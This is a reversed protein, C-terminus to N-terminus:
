LQLQDHQNRGAGNAGMPPAIVSTVRGLPDYATTTTPGGPLGSAPDPLSDSMQEGIADYGYTEVGGDADTIQYVNGTPTYTYTTVAPTSSGDPGPTSVTSLQELSNYTYTTNQWVQDDNSVAQLVSQSTVNGMPDYAYNTQPSNGDSDAPDTENIERGLNDYTFYTFNGNEDEYSALDNFSDYSYYVAASATYVTSSQVYLPPNASSLASSPEIVENVLGADSGSTNYVNTTVNGNPDEVTLVLGNPCSGGPSDPTTYTYQTVVNSPWDQETVSKLDGANGGTEDTDYYAYSVVDPPFSVGSWDVPANYNATDTEVSLPDEGPAYYTWTVTDGSVDASLYGYTSNDYIAAGDHEASADADYAYTEATGDITPSWDFSEIQDIPTATGAALRSAKARSRRCSTIAAPRPSLPIAGLNCPAPPM